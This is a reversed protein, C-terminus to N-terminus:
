NNCLQCIGFFELQHYNIKEFGAIKLNQESIKQVKCNMVDSVKGCKICVLHHHHEKKSFEYYDKKDQLHIKSLLGASCLSEANRYLTVINASKLLKERLELISVPMTKHALVELMGLRAPTVKLRAKKLAIKFQENHERCVM